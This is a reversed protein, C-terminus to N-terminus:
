APGGPPSRERQTRVLFELAAQYGWPGLGVIVGVAVDRLLSVHRFSERAYVNSLHVEVFPLSTALLADRIAVSTHTYAAPNIVIGSTGARWAAHIQDVLAGEHASQCCVVSVGLSAGRAVLTENLADLTMTGYVAPERTGLLDLNPGHVVDIRM